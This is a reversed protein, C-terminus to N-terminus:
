FAAKNEVGVKTAGSFQLKDEDQESLMQTIKEINTKAEDHADAERLKRAFGSKNIQTTRM